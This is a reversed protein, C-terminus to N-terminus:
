NSNKGRKGLGFAYKVLVAFVLALIGLFLFLAILWHWISGYM